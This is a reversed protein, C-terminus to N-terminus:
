LKPFTLTMETGEDVRSVLTIEAHHIQAGHKVISLGLGTGGTQKSRSKDVRYFREFVRSQHEPPIGVGNDRVVVYPHGDRLGTEAEVMGGPRNYKVGNEMLNTIMEELLAPDGVVTAPTGTVRLTIESAKAMDALKDRCGECLPLLPVRQMDGTAGEDLRSLRLIDEILMLLRRSEKLIKGGLEGADAPNALGSALMEAYGSITTLPTRLEHSVNASFQRRSEEAERAETVDQFLLVRGGGSAPSLSVRLVRGSACMEGEGEGQRLLKALTEHRSLSLLTRGVPDGQANLIDKAAPNMALVDHRDDLIVLGERMGDLVADLEAKQSELRDMQGAIRRNQQEMRRLIPSLEEYADSDLPHDLDIGNIPKVMARTVPRALLSAIVVCASAGLVLWVSASGLAALISKRTGSLRLVYGSPLRRAYYVSTEGLTASTRSAWGEGSALAAEIETRGLHNGMTEATRRSDFLVTGEADVLTVRDVYAGRALFAAPDEQDALYASLTDAERVLAQKLQDSFTVYMGGAVMLCMLCATILACAIMCRTLRKRM